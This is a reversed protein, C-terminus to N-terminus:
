LLISDNIELVIKNTSTSVGLVQYVVDNNFDCEQKIFGNLGLYCQKGIILQSAGEISVLIEGSICVEVINNSANKSVVGIIGDFLSVNNSDYENSAILAKTGTSDIRVIKGITLNTEDEVNYALKKISNTSSSGDSIPVWEATEISSGKLIYKIQQDEVFVEMGIYKLGNALNNADQLTPQVSLVDLASGGQRKFGMPFDMNQMKSM